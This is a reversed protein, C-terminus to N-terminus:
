STDDAISSFFKQNKKNKSGGTRLHINLQIEHILLAAPSSTKEKKSFMRLNRESRLSYVTAAVAAQKVVKSYVGKTNFWILVSDGYRGQALIYDTVFMGGLVIFSFSFEFFLHKQSERESSHLICSTDNTCGLGPKIKRDKTLLRQHTTLWLTFSHRPVVITSWVMSRRDWKTTDLLSIYGQKITYGAPQAGVVQQLKLRSKFVKQMPWSAQSPIKVDWVGDKKTYYSHIWKIWLRDKLFCM